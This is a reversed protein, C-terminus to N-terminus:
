PTYWIPSSYAREQITTAFGTAQPDMGLAVADYVQHRPTPIELVRVYYFASEARDFAPDTWVTALRAAGISNEYSATALDVTNGVAPLLGDSDPRRDGSWAVDFVQEHTVGARDMWGKIVQVRDLMAGAPDKVAEILLTPAANRPARTLDGGMPVGGRYGVTALDAAGADRPAFDFGGFVRLGIRTGTTAYVEKRSFAQAIADRTNDTAWVAALGSASLNWADLRAGANPPYDRAAAERRLSPLIDRAVAGGFNDEALTAMGTHIDSSGIFGLRYPNVGVQGEITLGRLLASRAYDGAEPTPEQAFFLHRYIEFEAFEDNPSLAPHVESTGKAQTIEMVPEWRM